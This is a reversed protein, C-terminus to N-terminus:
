LSFVLDCETSFESKFLIHVQRYYLSRFSYYISTCTKSDQAAHLICYIYEHPSMSNQINLM